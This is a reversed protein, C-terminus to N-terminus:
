KKVEERDIESKEDTMKIPIDTEQSALTANSKKPAEITLTGDPHWTSEIKDQQVDRPLTYRRIFERSIFGHDDSKEEHKGHISVTGDDKFKVTVDEPKFHKLDLNVQFHDKDNKVMSAGQDVNNSTRSLARRYANLYSLVPDFGFSDLVVVINMDVQHDNHVCVGGDESFYSKLDDSLKKTRDSLSQSWGKEDIDKDKLKSVFDCIANIRDCIQNQITTDNKGEILQYQQDINNKEHELHDLFKQFGDNESKKADLYKRHLDKRFSNINDHQHQEIGSVTQASILTAVFIFVILKFM